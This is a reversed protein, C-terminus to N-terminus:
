PKPNRSAKGITGDKTLTRNANKLNQIKDARQQDTLKTALGQEALVKFNPHVPKYHQDGTKIRQKSAEVSEKYFKEAQVKDMGQTNYRQRERMAHYSNRGHKISPADSVIREAMGGCACKVEEPPLKGYEVEEYVEYDRPDDWDPLDDIEEQSLSSVLVQETFVEDVMPIHRMDEKDCQECYYNYYPM